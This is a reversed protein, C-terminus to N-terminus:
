LGLNEIEENIFFDRFEGPQAPDYNGKDDIKISFAKNSGDKRL